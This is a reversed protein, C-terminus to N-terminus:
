LRRRHVTDCHFQFAIVPFEDACGAVRRRGSWAIRRAAARDGDDSFGPRWGTRGIRRDTDGVHGQSTVSRRHPWTDPLDDGTVGELIRGVLCRTSRDESRERRAHTARHIPGYVLVLHRRYSVRDPYRAM